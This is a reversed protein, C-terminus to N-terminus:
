KRSQSECTSAASCSSSPSSFARSAPLFGAAAGTAFSSTGSSVAAFAPSGSLLSDSSDSSETQSFESAFLMYMVYRLDVSVQIIHNKM